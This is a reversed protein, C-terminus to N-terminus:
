PSVFLTPEITAQIGITEVPWTAYVLLAVSGCFILLGIIILANRWFRPM